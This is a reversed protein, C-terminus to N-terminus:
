KPYKPLEALKEELNEGGIITEYCSKCVWDYGNFYGDTVTYQNENDGITVSCIQCHDHRWGDEVYEIYNPDFKQETYLWTTKGKKEVLALRPKWKMYQFATGKLDYYMERIHDIEIDGNPLRVFTNSM